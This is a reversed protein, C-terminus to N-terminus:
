QDTKCFVLDKFPTVRKYLRSEKTLQSWICLDLSTRFEPQAVNAKESWNYLAISDVCEIRSRM